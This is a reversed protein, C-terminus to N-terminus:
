VIGLSFFSNKTIDNQCLGEFEVLFFFGVHFLLTNVVIDAKAENFSSCMEVLLLLKRQLLTINITRATV